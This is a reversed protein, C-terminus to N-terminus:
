LIQWVLFYISANHIFQFTLHTITGQLMYRLFIAPPLAMGIASHWWSIHPLPPIAGGKKVKITGPPSRDAEHGQQKVERPFLGWYGSSLLSPPCWLWDPHQPSSFFRASGPVLGPWGVQLGDSHRYLGCCSELRILGSVSLIDYIEDGEHGLKVSELSTTLCVQM